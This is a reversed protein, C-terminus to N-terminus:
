HLFTVDGVKNFYTGDAYMGTVKWVYVGEQALNESGFYGDWGKHIELSEFILVGWRNFIQLHYEAINVSFPRFIHDDISGEEWYGGTPGSRNWLFANPYEIYGTKWEVKIPTKLRSSDVCGNSSTAWLTIYYTGPDEYKHWPNQETSGTSDGFDWLYTGAYTSYNSFVVVQQNNTVEKPYIDFIAAPSQLVTIIGQHSATGAINTVTLRVIYNGPIYYTHSPNKESSYNKDGFDWLYTEGDTSLNRFEVTLPTCGSTDPLWYATPVPPFLVQIHITDETFCGFKDAATTYSIVHTGLGAENPDFINDTVGPGSFTGGSPAAILTVPPTNIYITGVRNFMIVPIPMVTIITSDSDTCDPNALDYIILHNGPGALLPNFINGTVGDGRWIGGQDHATLTVPPSNECLTDVPTITADPTAVTIVIQDSDSCGNSTINYTITYSGAGVSAPDFVNGTVGPGQWTGGADAATLTVMPDSTCLLRVPMITADPVPLVRIIATDSDSCGSGNIITYGIIHDGPGAAAPNFRDGSIGPGSWTGGPDHATLRVPSANACLPSVPNITANPYDVILIIATTVVPPHDGNIRDRPGGPIAPDDYPNCYNWNRLTVQFYQGVLKDNNVNIVDSWVGSGTVPGTLTIIDGSYPFTRSRGDITVPTGTMTNDTGYIWQVWRTNVNPNDREQPPVCNFQTLDQFRVNASNGVCVPWVEPNIHMHGGNHDDDDWVTVIQEQASSTCVVGNVVLTAQPHYNCVDGRSTYTVNATAQFVGPSTESAPITVISGNDWDFRIGVAAGGNNVGTYTVTWSARVPSCLKDPTINNAKSIITCNQGQVGSAFIVLLLLIQIKRM